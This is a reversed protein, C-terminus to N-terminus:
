SLPAFGICTYFSVRERERDRENMYVCMNEKIIEKTKKEQRKSKGRNRQTQNEM